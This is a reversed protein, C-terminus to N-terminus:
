VGQVDECQDGQSGAVGDVLEPRQGGVEPIVEEVWGVRGM